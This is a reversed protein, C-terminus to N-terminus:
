GGRQTLREDLEVNKDGCFLLFMKYNVHLEKSYGLVLKQECITCVGM